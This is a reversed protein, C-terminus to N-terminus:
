PSPEDEEGFVEATFAYLTSKESRWCGKPLGAKRCTHELFQERDWGWEGPVQPLLLGRNSGQEIILGHRGVEIENVDTVAEAPSLLSIDITLDPVEAPRVPPFRPDELAAARAMRAVSTLTPEHAEINGICGRLDGRKKLTVFAAGLQQLEPDNAEPTYGEGRTAAEVAKRAIHLLTKRQEENLM